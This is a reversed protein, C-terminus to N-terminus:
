ETHVMSQMQGEISDEEPRGVADACESVMASSTIIQHRPASLYQRCDMGPLPSIHQIRCLRHTLFAFMM